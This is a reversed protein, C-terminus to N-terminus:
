WTGAGLQIGEGSLDVTFRAITDQEGFVHDDFYVAAIQTTLVAAVPVEGPTGALDPFFEILIGDEPIDLQDPRTFFDGTVSTIDYAGGLVFDEAVQSDRPSGAGGIQSNMLSDYTGNDTMDISDYLM